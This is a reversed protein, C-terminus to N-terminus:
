HAPDGALGLSSNFLPVQFGQDPLPPLENLDNLGFLELFRRTTRYLFPRGPAEKRGAEEILGLEVLAEVAYSSDVGRFLDVEPRTIPQRYAAITLTELLSRGLKSPRPRRLRAVYDVFEPKSLLRYGGAVKEVMVGRGDGDASMDLLAQAVEAEPTELVEALRDAPLPEEAVFLLCEIAAKLKGNLLQM